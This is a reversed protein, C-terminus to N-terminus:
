LLGSIFLKEAHGCVELESFTVCKFKLTSSFSAINHVIVERAETVWVGHPPLM